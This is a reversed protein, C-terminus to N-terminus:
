IMGLTINLTGKCNTSRHLDICDNLNRVGGNSVIPCQVNEVALKLVDRNIEGTHQSSTRAHIAIFSVGAKELRKCM